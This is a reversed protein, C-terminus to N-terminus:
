PGDGTEELRPDDEAIPSDIEDDTSLNMARYARGIRARLDPDFAKSRADMALTEDILEWAWQPASRFFIEDHDAM